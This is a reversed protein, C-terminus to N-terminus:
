EDYAQTWYKSHMALNDSQPCHKVVKVEDHFNYILSQRRHIVESDDVTTGKKKFTVRGKGKPLYTEIRDGCDVVHPQWNKKEAKSFISDSSSSSYDAMKLNASDFVPEM